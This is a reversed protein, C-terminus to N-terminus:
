GPPPMFHPRVHGSEVGPERACCTLEGGIGGRLNAGFDFLMVIGRAFVGDGATGGGVFGVTGRDGREAVRACRITLIAFDQDRAGFCFQEAAAGAFRTEEGGSRKALTEEGDDGGRGCHAGGCGVGDGSDCRREGNREGCACANVRAGSEDRADASTTASRVEM